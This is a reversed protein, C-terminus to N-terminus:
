LFFIVSFSRFHVFFFKCMERIYWVNLSISRSNFAKLQTPYKEVFSYKEKLFLRKDASSASRIFFICACVGVFAGIRAQISYLWVCFSSFYSRNVTASKHLKLKTLHISYLYIWVFRTPEMSFFFIHTDTM